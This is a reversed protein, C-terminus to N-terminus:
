SPKKGPDPDPWVPDPTPRQFSHRSFPVAAVIPLLPDPSRSPAANPEDSGASNVAVTPACDSASAAAAQTASADLSSAAARTEQEYATTMGSENDSDIAPLTRLLLSNIYALVAARRASIRNAALLKYLSALAFNIGQATQFDGWDAVIVNTLDASQQQKHLHQPCLGSSRDHSLSRCQRGASTRYSCRATLSSSTSKM